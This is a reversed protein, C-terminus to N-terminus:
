EACSDELLWHEHCTVALLGSACDGVRVRELILNKLWDRQGILLPYEDVICIIELVRIQEELIQM